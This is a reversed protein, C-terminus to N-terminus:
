GQISSMHDLLLFTVGESKAAVWYERFSEQSWLHHSHNITLPLRELGKRWAELKKNPLFEEGEALQQAFIPVLDEPEQDASVVSVKEGALARDLFINLFFLLFFFFWFISNLFSNLFFSNM